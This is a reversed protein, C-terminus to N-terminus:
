CYKSSNERIRRSRTTNSAPEQIEEILLWMKFLKRMRESPIYIIIPEENRIASRWIWQIMESLAYKDKDIVINRKNFFHEFFPNPYRNVCYALVNRDSYDNTARSTIELWQLQSVGNRKLKPIDSKFCTWLRENSKSDTYHKFFNAIHNGLKEILQPNNMFWTKSLSSEILHNSANCYSNGIKNLKDNEVITVLDRMRHKWALDQDNNETLVIEYQDNIKEIHHISYELGFYDYYLSQIQHDFLYTMIYIESFIGDMFVEIPFSWILLSDNVFYLLGRDALQKLQLYKGLKDDGLWEISFDEKVNIVGLEKLYLIDDRITKEKDEDSIRDWKYLDFNEVVGMTEDLFLVYDNYRLANLLEDNINSFLAHTSVIDVGEIVLKILHDMKRGRGLKVDPQTFTRACGEIIRDCESLFPTIFIIKTDVDLSNIYNIAWQTKGSSVYSDIIKVRCSDM